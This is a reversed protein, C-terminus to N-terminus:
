YTSGQLNVPGLFASSLRTWYKWCYYIQIHTKAADNVQVRRFTTLFSSPGCVECSLLCSSIRWLNAALKQIQQYTIGHLNVPGLFASDLRTWYKWFYYIQIHTKAADNVQVRRFTTLISSRGSIERSLFYSSIRGWNATLKQMQQYTIGQLNVPGLFASSLRTWYKWCYYIQIHTKAADNAQVRRFTTLISCRGGLERSLFWSSIHGWNAALKQMQQYTIGQLNVPGLFASDLRTWYKWCCYIQIHTKAADNVQVRRFTTLFSSPGCVERSLFCSSIRGWNAALKQM